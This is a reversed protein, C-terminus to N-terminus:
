PAKHPVKDTDNTGVFAEARGADFRGTLVLLPLSSRWSCLLRRSSQAACNVARQLGM